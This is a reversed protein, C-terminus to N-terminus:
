SWEPGTAYTIIYAPYAASPQHTIFIEPSSLSDVTSNYKFPAQGNRYPLIGKQEGAGMCPIGTCALVVMM